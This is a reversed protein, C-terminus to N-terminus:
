AEHLQAQEIDVRNKSDLAIQLTLAKEAIHKEISELNPELRARAATLRKQAIAFKEEQAWAEAHVDQVKCATEYISSVGSKWIAKSKRTFEGGLRKELDM